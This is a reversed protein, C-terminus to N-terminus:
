AAKMLGPETTGRLGALPPAAGAAGALSARHRGMGGHQAHGQRHRQRPQEVIQRRNAHVGASAVIEALLMRDISPDIETILIPDPRRGSDSIKQAAIWIDEHAPTWFDAANLDLGDMKHGTLIAALVAKEADADHPVRQLDGMTDPADPTM